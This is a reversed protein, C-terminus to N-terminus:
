VKYTKFQITMTSQITTTRFVELFLSRQFIIMKSTWLILITPAEEMQISCPDMELSAPIRARVLKIWKISVGLLHTTTRTYLKILDM